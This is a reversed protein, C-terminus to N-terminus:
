SGARWSTQTSFSATMELIALWSATLTRRTASRRASRRNGAPQADPSIPMHARVDKSFIRLRDDGSKIALSGCGAADPLWIKSTVGSDSSTPTFIRVSCHAPLMMPPLTFSGIAPARFEGAAKYEASLVRSSGSHLSRLRESAAQGTQAQVNSCLTAMAAVVILRTLKM